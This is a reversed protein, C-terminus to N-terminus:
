DQAHIIIILVPAAIIHKTNILIYHAQSNNLDHLSLKKDEKLTTPFCSLFHYGLSWKRKLNVEITYPPYVKKVETETTM